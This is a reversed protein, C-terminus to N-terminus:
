LILHKRLSKFEKLLIEKEKKTEKAYYSKYQMKYSEKPGKTNANKGTGMTNVKDPTKPTCPRYEEILAEIQGKEM